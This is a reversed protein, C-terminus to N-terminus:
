TSAAHGAAPDGPGANQGGLNRATNILGVHSFAQPFNGVLRKGVPDYQEALLGVDNRLSLLREFLDTAERRRGQLAYNDALWFTCMLFAGEGGAMGDVSADYPYRNAFGDRVLRREILKVTGLMKPDNAGIFGMLPLMLLSADPDASGYYQTFAGVAPNYGEAMVQAKVRDRAARWRDADGPRGFHEVDAVARDFAVWAMVKSHTFHRPPGRVEWIGEDPATWRDELHNVIARQVRAADGSEALGARRALHLTATVEGYIDLQHQHYAGNGSRVPRSGEYGSLWPLEIETLRREGTVGYMIQLKAPDGAVANVLWERWAKAEDLYGGATLAYLTFTSDRLWCYRYDWNRVGGIEEPLSTTAAAAIGGTPLYTLAKLTVLSRQVAERWPGTYTSRGSWEAWVAEPGARAVEADVAPPEPLHSPHWSLTFPVRQGEGVAFEAATHMNRGYLPVGARLCLADPGATARIGHREGDGGTTRRVWPVVSGYDFRIVLECHMRVHGRTGLVIRVLDVVKDNPPMFDVVTVVAGAETQFETELILSGPRYRRRVARVPEAPALLWRGNEPTGLLAAFCAPSDIRPFCLWDISGDKGVLAATHCDGVLAYDEIRSAM